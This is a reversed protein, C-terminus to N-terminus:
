EKHLQEGLYLTLLTKNKLDFDTTIEGVRCAVYLRFAKSQGQLWSIVTVSDMWLKMYEIDLRLADRITFMVRSLLLIAQLEKHPISTQKLPTLWARACM